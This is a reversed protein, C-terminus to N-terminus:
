KTGYSHTIQFVELILNSFHGMVGAKVTYKSKPLLSSSNFLVGFNWQITKQINKSEM